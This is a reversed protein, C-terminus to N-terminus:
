APSHYTSRMQGSFMVQRSLTSVTANKGKRRGITVVTVTVRVADVQQKSTKASKSSRGCKTREVRDASREYREAAIYTWKLAISGEEEVGVNIRIGDVM